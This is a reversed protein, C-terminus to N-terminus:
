LTQDLGVKDACGDITGSRESARRSAPALRESWGPGAEVTAHELRKGAPNQPASFHFSRQSVWVGSGRVLNQLRRHNASPSAHHEQLDLLARPDGSIM